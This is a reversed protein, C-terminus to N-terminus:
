QCFFIPKVMFMVTGLGLGRLPDIHRALSSLGWAQVQMYSHDQIGNLAYVLRM